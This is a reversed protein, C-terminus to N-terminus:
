LRVNATCFPMDAKGGFASMFRCMQAQIEGVSKILVRGPYTDPFGSLNDGDTM